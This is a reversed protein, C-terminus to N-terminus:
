PVPLRAELEALRRRARELAPSSRGEAALVALEAAVLSLDSRAAEPRGEAIGEAARGLLLDATRLPDREPEFLDRERDTSSPLAEGPRAPAPPVPTRPAGATARDLRRELQVREADLTGPRDVALQRRTERAQAAAGSPDTVARQEIVDAQRRQWARDPDIVTQAQVSGAVVIGIAASAWWRM